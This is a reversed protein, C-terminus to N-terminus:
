FLFLFKSRSGFHYFGKVYVPILDNSPSTKACGQKGEPCSGTILILTRNEDTNEVVHKVGQVLPSNSNSVDSLCGGSFVVLFAAGECSEEVSALTSKVLDFLSNEEVKGIQGIEDHNHGEKCTEDNNQPPPVNNNDKSDLLKGFFTLKISGVVGLVDWKPKEQEKPKQCKKVMDNQRKSRIKFTESHEPQTIIGSKKAWNTFRKENDSEYETQRKRNPKPHFFQFDASKRFRLGNSFTDNELSAVATVMGMVNRSYSILSYLGAKLLQECDSGTSMFESLSDM